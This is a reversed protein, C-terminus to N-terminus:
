LLNSFCSKERKKLDLSDKMYTREYALIKGRLKDNGEQIADVKSQRSRPFTRLTKMNFERKSIIRGFAYLDNIIISLIEFM